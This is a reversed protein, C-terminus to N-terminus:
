GEPPALFPADHDRPVTDAFQRHDGSPRLRQPLQM